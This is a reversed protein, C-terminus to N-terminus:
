FICHLGPVRLCKCMSALERPISDSGQLLDLIDATPAVCFLLSPGGKIAGALQFIRVLGDGDALEWIFQGGLTLM